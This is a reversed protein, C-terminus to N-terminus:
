TSSTLGSLLINLRTISSVPKEIHLCFGMQSISLLGFNESQLQTPTPRNTRNGSWPFLSFSIEKLCNKQVHTWNQAHFCLQAFQLVPTDRSTFKMLSHKCLTYFFGFVQEATLQLSLKFQPILICRTGM